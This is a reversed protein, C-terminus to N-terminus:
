LRGQVPLIHFSQGNGFQEGNVIEPVDRGVWLQPEINNHNWEARMDPTITMLITRYTSECVMKNVLEGFMLPGEQSPIVCATGPTQSVCREQCGKAKVSSRPLVDKTNMPSLNLSSKSFM